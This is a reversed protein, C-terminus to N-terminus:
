TVALAAAWHMWFSWNNKVLWIGVSKYTIDWNGFTPLSKLIQFSQIPVTGKPCMGPKLVLGLTRLSRQHADM